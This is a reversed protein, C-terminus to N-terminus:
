LMLDKKRTGLEKIFYLKIIRGDLYGQYTSTDLSLFKCPFAYVITVDEQEQIGRAVYKTTKTTNVHPQHVSNHNEQELTMSLFGQSCNEM